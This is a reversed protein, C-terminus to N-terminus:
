QCFRKARVQYYIKFGSKNNLNISYLQCLIILYTLYVNYHNSIHQIQGSKVVQVLRDSYWREQRALQVLRRRGRAAM